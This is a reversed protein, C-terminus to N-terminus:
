SKAETSFDRIVWKSDTSALTRSKDRHTPRRGMGLEVWNLLQESSIPFYRCMLLWPGLASVTIAERHEPAHGSGPVFRAEKNLGGGDNRQCFYLAPAPM